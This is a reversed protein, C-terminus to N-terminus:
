EQSNQLNGELGSSLMVCESDISLGSLPYVHILQFCFAKLYLESAQAKCVCVAKDLTPMPSVTNKNFYGRHNSHFLFGNDQPVELFKKENIM